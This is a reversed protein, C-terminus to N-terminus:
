LRDGPRDYASATRDHRRRSPQHGDAESGPDAAAFIGPTQTDFAAARKAAGQAANVYRDIEGVRGQQVRVNLLELSGTIGTLLNNFDHALGGTLQGVAEMKQSQRLAEQARELEETRVRVRTELNANVHRLESEARARGAATQTRAAIEQLFALEEASWQRAVSHTVYLLAVTEDHETIPMNVFARVDISRLSQAFDASRPDADVDAIVVTDGRKIDEIYSGYDRFHLLEALPATGEAVYGGDIVITETRRDVIGYGARNVGLTRAILESAAYAIDAQNSLNRTRDTLEILARQLTQTRKNDTIDIIVGPFNTARGAADFQAKGQALVWRVSGDAAQLRYEARYENGSKIAEQILVSTKDRDHPHIGSIFASIPAGAPPSNRIWRICSRSDSM